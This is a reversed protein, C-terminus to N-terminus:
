FYEWLGLSLYGKELGQKDCASTPNRDFRALLQQVTAKLGKKKFHSSCKKDEDCLDLFAEGVESFGAGSSSVNVFKDPTVGSTTVEGDLVYGTVKPPNLHMVREVWM